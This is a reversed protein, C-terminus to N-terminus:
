LIVVEGFFYKLGKKTGRIWFVWAGHMPAIGKWM